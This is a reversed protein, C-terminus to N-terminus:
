IDGSWKLGALEERLTSALTEAVEELEQRIHKQRNEEEASNQQDEAQHIEESADDSRPEGDIAERTAPSGAEPTPPRAPGNVALLIHDGVPIIVSLARTVQAEFVLIDESAVTYAATMTTSMTRLDKIEPTESKFAYALVSGNAASVM